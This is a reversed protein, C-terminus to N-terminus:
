HDWQRHQYGQGLLHGQRSQEMLRSLGSRSPPLSFPTLVSPGEDEDASDDQLNGNVSIDDESVTEVTVGSSTATFANGHLIKIQHSPSANSATGSSDPKLSGASQSGFSASLSSALFHEQRVSDTFRQRFDKDVLKPPPPQYNKAELHRYDYRRIACPVFFNPKPTPPKALFDGGPHKQPPPSPVRPNNEMNLLEGLDEVFTAPLSGCRPQDGQHIAAGPTESQTEVENSLGQSTDEPSIAVEEVTESVKIESQKLQIQSSEFTLAASEPTVSSSTIRSLPQSSERHVAKRSEAPQVISPVSDHQPTLIETSVGSTASSHKSSRRSTTAPKPQVPEAALLVPDLPPSEEFVSSSTTGSSQQSSKRRMLVPRTEPYDTMLPAPDQASHQSSKRRMIVPRRKAGRAKATVAFTKKQPVRSAPEPVILPTPPIPTPTNSPKRTTSQGDPATLLIRTTKHNEGHSHSSSPKKLIPPLPKGSGSSPKRPKNAQAARKQAKHLEVLSISRQDSIRSFLDALTSGTLSDLLHRNGWIRWFFNELRYGKDDNHVSPNASYVLSVVSCRLDCGCTTLSPAVLSVKGCGRLMRLRWQM